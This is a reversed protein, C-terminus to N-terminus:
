CSSLSRTLRTTLYRKWYSWCRNTLVWHDYYFSCIRITNNKPNYTRLENKIPVIYTQAELIRSM